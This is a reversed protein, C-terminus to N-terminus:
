RNRSFKIRFKLGNTRIRCASEREKDRREINSNSTLFNVTADDDEGMLHSYGAVAVSLVASLKRKFGEASM